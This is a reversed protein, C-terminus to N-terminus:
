ILPYLSESWPNRSPDSQAMARRLFSFAGDWALMLHRSTQSIWMLDVLPIGTEITAVHIRGLGRNVRIVDYLPIM